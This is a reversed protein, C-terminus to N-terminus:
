IGNRYFSFYILLLFYFCFTKLRFPLPFVPAGHFDEALLKRRQIMTGMAGDFFMIRQTLTRELEERLGARQKGTAAM